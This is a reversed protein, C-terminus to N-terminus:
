VYKNVINELIEQRGSVPQPDLLGARDAIQELTMKGALMDTHNAWGAYRDAL